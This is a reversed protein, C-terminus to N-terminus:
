ASRPSPVCTLGGNEPTTSSRRRRSCSSCEAMRVLSGPGGACQAGYVLMTTKAQPNKLKHAEDLVLADFKGYKRAVAAVMRKADDNVLLYEYGTIIAFTDSGNAGKGKVVADRLLAPVCGPWCDSIEDRWVGLAVIPCLVLVRRAGLTKLAEIAQITNHTLICHETVYLHDPADVSICVAEANRTYEVSVVTRVPHSNKSPNYREAKREVTFPQVWVPLRMRIQYEIPKNRPHRDIRACAPSAGSARWWNM